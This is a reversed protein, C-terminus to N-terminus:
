GLATRSVLRLLVLLAFTFLVLLLALALAVGLNGELAAYIALPMTQTRGMFNGAFMITAGFEGLARAWALATGALLGPLALPLTVRWFIRWPPAGLTAAVQTWRRDVARFATIAARIYFPAAVFTQALIVAAPTFALEIGGLALWQGVLGRRGFAVLLGIGAVAPPLVIPLEILTELLTRGRFHSHALLWALPTGALLALATSTLSTTLSLWLAAGVRPDRLATDLEPLARWAIALLPLLFFLPVLLLVAGRWGRAVM